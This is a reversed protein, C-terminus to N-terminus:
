YLKYIAKIQNDINKILKKRYYCYDRLNYLIENCNFYKIDAIEATQFIDTNDLNFTANDYLKVLYYLNSYKKNDTGYFNEKFPKNFIFEFNSEHIKTEEKLERIACNYSSETLKNSKKGKPFEWENDIYIYSCKHLIHNIDLNFMNDNYTILYGNMIRLYKQYINPKIKHFNNKLYLFPQWTYAWLEEFTSNNILQKEHISMYSFMKIIEEYNYLDYSGKMFALFNYSHKRKVMVYYPLGNIIKFCIVGCSSNPYPCNKVIHFYKGCNLCAKKHKYGQIKSTKKTTANSNNIICNEM